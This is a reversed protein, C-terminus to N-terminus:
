CGRCIGRMARALTVDDSTMPELPKSQEAERAAQAKQKDARAAEQRQYCAEREAKHQVFRCQEAAANAPVSATMALPLSSAISFAVTVGAAFKMDRGQDRDSDQEARSYRYDPNTEEPKQMREAIATMVREPLKAGQLADRTAPHRLLTM